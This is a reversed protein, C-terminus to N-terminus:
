AIKEAALRVALEYGYVGAGAIVADAVGSIWSHHRFEDRAHPNSIHLEIVYGDFTKLADHIAASTHTYAGANIIIAAVTGRAAHIMDVIAGEHNSQEFGVDVGLDRAVIACKEAISALSDYGYIEPQRQGLLNLNPGNIVRINKPM